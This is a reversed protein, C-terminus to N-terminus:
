QGCRRWTSGCRRSVHRHTLLACPVAISVLHEFPQRVSMRAVCTGRPAKDTPSCMSHSGSPELISCIAASSCNVQRTTECILLRGCDTGGVSLASRVASHHQISNIPSSVKVDADNPALERACSYALHALQWRCCACLVPCVAMLDNHRRCKSKSSVLPYDRWRSVGSQHSDESFKSYLSCCSPTSCLSVRWSFRHALVAAHLASESVTASWMM